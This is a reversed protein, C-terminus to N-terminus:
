ILMKRLVREYEIFIKLPWDKTLQVFKRQMLVSCWYTLNEQGIVSKRSDMSHLLGESTRLKLPWSNPALYSPQYRYLTLYLIQREIMGQWILTTSYQRPFVQLLRGPFNIKRYRASSLGQFRVANFKIHIICVFASGLQTLYNISM